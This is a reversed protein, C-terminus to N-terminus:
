SHFPCRYARFDILAWLYAESLNMLHPGKGYDGNCKVSRLEHGKWMVVPLEAIEAARRAEGAEGRM